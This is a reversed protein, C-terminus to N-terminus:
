HLHKKSLKAAATHLASYLLQQPEHLSPALQRCSSSGQCPLQGPLNPEVVLCLLSLAKKRAQKKFFASFDGVPVASTATIAHAESQDPVTRFCQGRSGAAVRRCHCAESSTAWRRQRAFEVCLAKVQRWRFRARLQPTDLAQLGKFGEGGARLDDVFAQNLSAGPWRLTIAM